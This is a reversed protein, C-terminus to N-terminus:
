AVRSKLSKPSLKPLKPHKPGHKVLLLNQLTATLSRQLIFTLKTGSGEATKQSGVSSHCFVLPQFGLRNPSLRDFLWKRTLTLKARLGGSPQPSTLTSNLRSNLSGCPKHSTNARGTPPEETLLRLGGEARRRHGAMTLRRAEMALPPRLKGAVEVKEVWLIAAYQALRPWVYLGWLAQHPICKGQEKRQTLEFLTFDLHGFTIKKRKQCSIHMYPGVSTRPWPWTKATERRSRSEEMWRWGGQTRFRAGLAGLCARAVPQSEQTKIGLGVWGQM